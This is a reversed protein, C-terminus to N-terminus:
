EVIWWRGEDNVAKVNQGQSYKKSLSGNQIRVPQYTDPDLIELEPYTKAVTTKKKDMVKVDKRRYEAMVNKGSTLDRGVVQKGTKKVKIIKETKNTIKIVDGKIFEPPTYSVNVRYIEKSTQKNRSFHHASIKLRGGFANQLKTGLTQVFKQSTLYFDVGNKMVTEKNLHIGKSEQKKAEKRIYEIIEDRQNRLQLIGEFYQGGKKSLKPCVTFEVEVPFAYIEDKSVELEVEIKQKIGPNQHIGGIIPNIRIDKNPVYRQVTKVVAEKLSTYSVWKNKFKFTKSEPCIKISLGEPIKQLPNMEAKCRMCFDGKIGKKGCRPCFKM